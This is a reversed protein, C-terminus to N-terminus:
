NAAVEVAVLYSKLSQLLRGARELADRRRRDRGKQPRIVVHIRTSVGAGREDQAETFGAEILFTVARDGDRRAADPQAELRLVLRDETISDIAAHQDAVFGRLKEVVINLPMPTALTREILSDGPTGLFWSFWGRAPPPAAPTALGSGLQVVCNRGNDKAQYLGRDARRLITEPTDGDQMETVGFSATVSKGGLAALPLEALDARIAEAKRVAAAGDCDTCLLAFEEGGYRAVLDGSRSHRRLLASFQVLVEDGAQHGHTDNVQKFKDLDCLILAFPRGCELHSDFALKLFRDFEARNAVQTLADRSAKEHLSQVRQELTVESSVDRMVVAAGLAVGGKGVIPTLHAEVELWQGNRGTLMLRRVSAVGQQAAATLPCASDSFPRRDGDRLNILEPAWQKHEVSGSPLGTLREAALNWFTIRLTPDLFFVADHFEELLRRGFADGSEAPLHAPSQYRWNAAVQDPALERLWRRAIQGQPAGAGSSIFISFERVLKPDFQTEAFGFLEALAREPPMARRYQTDSTMADFADAIALMRAGLPLQDGALDYGKRRGDYWAGAYKVADLIGPRDTCASLIEVGIRRHGEVVRFEDQPPRAASLLIADPVGIKGIDHLLAAIELEDRFDAPAKLSAAWGSCNMAVRLCHAATPLHRSRLASFLAGAVGLRGAILSNELLLDATTRDPEAAQAQSLLDAVRDLGAQAQRVPAATLGSAEAAPRLREM